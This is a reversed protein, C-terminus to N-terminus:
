WQLNELSTAITGQMAHKRVKGQMFAYIRLHMFAKAQQLILM